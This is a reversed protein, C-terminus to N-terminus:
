NKDRKRWGSQALARNGGDGELKDAHLAVARPISTFFLKQQPPTIACTCLKRGDARLEQGVARSRVKAGPVDLKDGPFHNTQDSM